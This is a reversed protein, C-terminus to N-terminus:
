DVHIGMCISDYFKGNIHFDRTLKGEEHFGLQKYLAIGQLNDEKVRLNIKRIIGGERAWELLSNILHKGIGIGWYEKLVSVGFEGTHSIRPRGRAKFSLNGVVNGDIEAILYVQNASRQFDEIIKVEQEVTINFEGSGFTLHDSEGAIQQIYAIIKAADQGEGRRISLLQGNKLTVHKKM